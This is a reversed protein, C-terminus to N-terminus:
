KTKRKTEQLKAAKKKMNALRRDANIININPVVTASATSTSSSGKLSLSHHHSKKSASGSSSSSSKSHAVSGQSATTAAPPNSQPKHLVAKSKCMTCLWGDENVSTESIPPKHCEQHYLAHCDACEALRNRSSGVDVRRCVVCVLEEFEKFQDHGDDVVEIKNDPYGEGDQTQEPDGDDGLALMISDYGGVEMSNSGSSSSSSKPEIIKTVGEDALHKKSLTNILM